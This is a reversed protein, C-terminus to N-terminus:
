QITRQWPQELVLALNDPHQLERLIWDATNHNSDLLAISRPPRGTYDCMVLLTRDLSVLTELMNTDSRLAAVHAPTFGTKNHRYRLAKSGLRVLTHVTTRHGSQVAYYLPTRNFRDRADIAKSGLAILEKIAVDDGDWAAGHIPTWGDNNPADILHLNEKYFAVPMRINDVMAGDDTYYRGITFSKHELSASM